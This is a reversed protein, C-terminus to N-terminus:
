VRILLFGMLFDRNKPLCQSVGNEITAIGSADITFTKTKPCNLVNTVTVEYIGGSRKVSMQKAGPAILIRGPMIRDKDEAEKVDM